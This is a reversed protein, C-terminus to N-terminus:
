SRAITTAPATLEPRRYRTIPLRAPAGTAWSHYIGLVVANAAAGDALTVLPDRGELIASLGDAIQAAHWDGYEVKGPLAPLGTGGAGVALEIRRLEDVLAPDPHDLRLLRGGGNPTYAIAGHEGAVEIRMDWRTTQDNACDLEAVAGSAFRVTARAEDEVEIAGQLRANALHTARVEVPDGGLFWALLDIAHVAQNICVGGGEGAWTGRWAGSAYYGPTRACRFWLRGTRLRGFGGEHLRAHVARALPNYRHQLICSAMRGAARAREGVAVIGAVEHPTVGLPKELIAHRGAAVVSVLQSAHRVHPTCIHVLQVAEDDLVDDLRDTRRVAPDDPLLGAAREPDVDCLWRVRARGDAALAAAHTRAIVGCGVIATDVLM